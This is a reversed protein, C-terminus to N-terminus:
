AGGNGRDEWLAVMPPVPQPSKPKAPRSIGARKLAKGLITLGDLPRAHDGLGNIAASRDDGDLADNVAAITDILCQAQAQVLRHRAAAQHRNIWVITRNAALAILATFM